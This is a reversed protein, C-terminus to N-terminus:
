EQYQADPSANASGAADSRDRKRRPLLLAPVFALVAFGVSWWFAHDFAAVIGTSGTIANAAIRSDLVVALVAAGFAGGVQQVIRSASSAHPIQKEPLGRYAAAMVPVIVAGLGVGRVVLAAGLLLQSTNPGALAFPLTGAVTLAIGALVVPRAGVRDTLEGVRVRVLLAGVGQPALLLGTALVDEGRVQQYYLPLLLLAGYLSLGALFLLCASASFSRVEFLRLDVIPEARTALAHVAFAGLLGSGIALPVVVSADAFGGSPDVRALGYILAAVAPSLLALGLTDLRQGVRPPDPAHRAM